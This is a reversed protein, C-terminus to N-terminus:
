LRQPALTLRKATVASRRRTTTLKGRRRPGPKVSAAVRQNVEGAAKGMQERRHSVAMILTIPKQPRASGKDASSGQPQIPPPARVNRNRCARRGVSTTAM